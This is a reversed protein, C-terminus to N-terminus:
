PVVVLDNGRSGIGELDTDPHRQGIQQDRGGQTAPTILYRQGLTTPLLVYPANSPLFQRQSQFTVIRRLAGGIILM